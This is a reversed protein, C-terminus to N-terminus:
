VKIKFYKLIIWLINLKNIFIKLFLLIFENYENSKVDNSIVENSFIYKM